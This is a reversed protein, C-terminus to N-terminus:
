RGQQGTNTEPARHQGEYPRVKNESELKARLADLEAREAETPLRPTPV